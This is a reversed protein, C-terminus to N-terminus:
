YDIITVYTLLAYCILFSCISVIYGISIFSIKNKGKPYICAQIIAVITIFNAHLVFLLDHLDVQGTEAQAGKYFFGYICYVAYFIYGSLNLALFDLNM